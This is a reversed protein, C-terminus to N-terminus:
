RPGKWSIARSRVLSLRPATRPGEASTPASREPRRVDILPQALLEAFHKAQAQTECLYSEVRGNRLVSVRFFRGEPSIVPEHAEDSQTAFNMLPRDPHIGDRLM